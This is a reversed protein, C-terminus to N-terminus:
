SVISFVFFIKILDFVLCENTAVLQTQSHHHNKNLMQCKFNLFKANLPYSQQTEHDLQIDQTGGYGSSGIIEM